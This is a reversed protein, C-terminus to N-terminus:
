NPYRRMVGRKAIVVRGYFLVFHLTIYGLISFVADESGSGWLSGKTHKLPLIHDILVGEWDTGSSLESSFQLAFRRFIFVLFNFVSSLICWVFLSVDERKM